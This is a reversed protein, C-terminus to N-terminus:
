RQRDFRAIEEATLARHEGPKLDPDLVLEGIRERHLTLVTNGVAAFMRKVQHYKGETITVRWETPSLSELEAPECPKPEEKLQIGHRLQEAAREALPEALTVRYVKAVRYRPSTIRHLWAGDDTLLVLGTADIDLRGVIHLEVSEPVEVLDLVTRHLGDRTACIYDVPKNLMLYQPGAITVPEGNLLVRAASAVHTGPDTVVVDDVTVAGARIAKQAQSRTLSSATALFRDLRLTKM